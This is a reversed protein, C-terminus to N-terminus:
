VRIDVGSGFGTRRYAQTVAVPALDPDPM